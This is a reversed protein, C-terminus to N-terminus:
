TYNWFLGDEQKSAQRREGGNREKRGGGGKKTSGLLLATGVGAGARREQVGRRRRESRRDPSQSFSMSFPASVQVNKLCRLSVHLDVSEGRHTIPKPRGPSLLRHIISFGVKKGTEDTSSSLPPPSDCKGSSAEHRNKLRYVATRWGDRLDNAHFLRATTKTVRRELGTGTRVADSPAQHESPSCRHKIRFDFISATLIVIQCRVLPVHWHIETKFVKSLM